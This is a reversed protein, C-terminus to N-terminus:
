GPMVPTIIFHRCLVRYRRYLGHVWYALLSFGPPRYRRKSVYIQRSYFSKERGTTQGTRELDRGSVGTVTGKLQGRPFLVVLGINLGGCYALGGDRRLSQGRVQLTM